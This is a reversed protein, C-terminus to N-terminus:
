AKFVIAPDVRNIKQIAFIASSVCMLVTIGFVTAASTPTILILLGQSALAWSRIGLCLAMGPLYGLVAMWLAQEIIVGYVLWDTAGMAKLTGFEKIRDSVSAYLIQGVVVMGVVVGVAAGLSLVFGIGTREQWYTRNKQAMEAQTYARTYPLAEELKLKLKQLDQGPAAEILVYTIEDDETLPEPIEQEEFRAPQETPRTTVFANANELSAFIYPSAVISQTDQTFGVVKAAFAGVDVVDGLWEVSLSDMSAEDVFVTYPNKLESLRGAVITGPAFLESNPDFGFVRVHNIQGGADRWLTGKVILPEARQVGEVQQAEALRKYPMHLTMELTEMDQSAVWIDAESDEVLLATSRIVGKFIGTQIAILSVAFMIGAQAVLFRPLDEFLNKRAISPM